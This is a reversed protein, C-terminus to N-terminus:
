PLVTVSNNNLEVSFLCVAFEGGPENKKSNGMYTAAM